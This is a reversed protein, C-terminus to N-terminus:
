FSLAIRKLGGRTAPNPYGNRPVWFPLPMSAIALAQPKKKKKADSCHELHRPWLPQFM